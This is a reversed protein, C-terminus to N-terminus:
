SMHSTARSISAWVKSSSSMETKTWMKPEGSGGITQRRESTNCLLIDNQENNPALHLETTLANACPAIPRRISGEHPPGMSNNRTGALARHSTYWLSHYTNDQRHSSAYLFVKSSIPFLLGHPPMPYGRESDSNGKVMHGVGYLRLYFTNLTDNFLANGEM